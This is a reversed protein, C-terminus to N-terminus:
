RVLKDLIASEAGPNGVNPYPWHEPSIKDLPNRFERRGVLQLNKLGLWTLIRRDFSRSLHQMAADAHHDLGCNRGLGDVLESLM